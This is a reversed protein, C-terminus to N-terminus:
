KVGLFAKWKDTIIRNKRDQTMNEPPESQDKSEFLTPYFDHLSIIKPHALNRGAIIKMAANDLLRASQMFNQKEQEQRATVYEGIQKLTM